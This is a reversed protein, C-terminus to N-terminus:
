CGTRLAKLLFYLNLCAIRPHYVVICYDHWKVGLVLKVGGWKVGGGTLGGM